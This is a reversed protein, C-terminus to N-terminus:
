LSNYFIMADSNKILKKIDKNLKKNTKKFNNKSFKLEEGSPLIRKKPLEIKIPDLFELTKNPNEILDEIKIFTAGQKKWAKNKRYYWNLYTDVIDKKDFNKKLKLWNNLYFDISVVWNYPNKIIAVIDVPVETILHKSGYIDNGVAEHETFNNILYRLLNTGSREVWKIKIEM